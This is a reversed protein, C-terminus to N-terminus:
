ETGYAITMTTPTRVRAYVAYPPSSTEMKVSVTCPTALRSNKKMRAIYMAAVKLGPTHYM